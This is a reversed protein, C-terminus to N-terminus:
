YGNLNEKVRIQSSRIIGRFGMSRAGYMKDDLKCIERLTDCWDSELFNRDNSKIGSEIIASALNAYAGHYHGTIASM